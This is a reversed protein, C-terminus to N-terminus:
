VSVRPCIMRADAAVACLMFIKVSIGAVRSEALSQPRCDRRSGFFSSTDVPLRECVGLMLKLPDDIVHGHM